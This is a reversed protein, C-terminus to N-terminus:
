PKIIGEGDTHIYGYVKVNGILEVRKKGVVSKLGDKDGILCGKILVVGSHSFVNGKVWVDGEIHLDQESIVSGEIILKRDQTKINMSGKSRLTGKIHATNENFEEKKQGIGIIIEKAFIRKFFCPAEIYLVGGCYLNIGVHSQSMIFCDGEVHMWRVVELNNEVRLDGKVFLARVRSPSKIILNNLSLVEKKSIFKYDGEITGHAGKIVVISDEYNELEAREEVLMLKEPKKSSLTTEISNVKGSELEKIARGVINMFSRGFYAPDKSYDQKINLPGADKKRYLELIAPFFPIILMAVFLLLFVIELM